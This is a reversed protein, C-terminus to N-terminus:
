DLGMIIKTNVSIYIHTTPSLPNFYFYTSIQIEREMHECLSLIITYEKRHLTKLKYM